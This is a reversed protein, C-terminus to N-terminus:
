LTKAFAELEEATNLALAEADSLEQLHNVVATAVAGRMSDFSSLGKIALELKISSPPAFGTAAKIEAIRQAIKARGEALISAKIAGAAGDIMKEHGLRLVKTKADLEDALALAAQIEPIASIIQRRAVEIHGHGAELEQKNKRAAKIDADSKIVKLCKEEFEKLEHGYKELDHVVSVTGTARVAIPALKLEKVEVELVASKPAWVKRAAEIKRWTPLIEKIIEPEPKYRTMLTEGLRWGDYESGLLEGAAFIMEDLDGLWILQCMQVRYYIPLLRADNAAGNAFAEKIAKNLTKCEAGLKRSFTLGDFSGTVPLSLGDIKAGCVVAAFDDGAYREVEPMLLGELIHGREFLIKQQQTPEPAGIQYREVLEDTTVYPSVGMAAPLESAGYGRLKHWEDSGQPVDYFEVQM